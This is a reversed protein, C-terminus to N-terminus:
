KKLITYLIYKNFKEVMEHFTLKGEQENMKALTAAYILKRNESLKQEYQKYCDDTCFTKEEDECVMMSYGCNKCPIEKTNKFPKLEIVGREYLQIFAWTMDVYITGNNRHKLAASAQNLTIEGKILAIFVELQEQTFVRHNRKKPNHNKAIELLTQRQEM